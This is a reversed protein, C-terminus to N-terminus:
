KRRHNGFPTRGARVKAGKPTVYKHRPAGVRDLLGGCRTCRPKAVRGFEKADVKESNGCERCKAKAM